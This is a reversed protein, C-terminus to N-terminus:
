AHTESRRTRPEIILEGHTQTHIHDSALMAHPFGLDIASVDNLRAVHSSSLSVELAGLNDQLQELTRAGV